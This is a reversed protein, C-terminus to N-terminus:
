RAPRAADEALPPPLPLRRLDAGSLDFADALILRMNALVYHRGLALTEIPRRATPRIEGDEEDGHFEALHVGAAGATAVFEILLRERRDDGGAAERRARVDDRAREVAEVYRRMDDHGATGEPWNAAEKQRIEGVVRPLVKTSLLTQVVAADGREVLRVEGVRRVPDPVVTRELVLDGAPDLVAAPLPAPSGAGGPPSEPGASAAPQTAVLVGVLVASPWWEVTRGPPRIRARRLATRLGALLAVAWRTRSPDPGRLRTTRGTAAGLRAGIAAQASPQM